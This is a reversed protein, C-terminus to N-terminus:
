EFLLHLVISILLHANLCTLVILLISYPRLNLSFILNILPIIAICEGPRVVSVSQLPLNFPNIWVFLCSRWSILVAVVFVHILATCEFRSGRRRNCNDPWRLMIASTRTCLHISRSLAASLCASPFFPFSLSLSLSLTAENLQFKPQSPRASARVSARVFPMHGHM